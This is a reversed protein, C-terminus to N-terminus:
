DDISKVISRFLEITESESFSEDNGTGYNSNASSKVIIVNKTPNVYIFQNCIGIAMFEGERGDPIWWQLGYGLGGNPM